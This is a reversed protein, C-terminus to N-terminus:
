ENRFPSVLELYLFPIFCVRSSRQPKVVHTCGPFSFTFLFWSLLVVTCNHDTDARFLKISADKDYMVVVLSFVVANTKSSVRM